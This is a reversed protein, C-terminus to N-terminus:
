AGRAAEVRAEMAAAIDRMQLEAREVRRHQRRLRERSGGDRESMARLRETEMVFRAAAQQLAVVEGCAVRAADRMGRIEPWQAFALHHAMGRAQGHFDSAEVFGAAFAILVSIEVSSVHDPDGGLAPMTPWAVGNVGMEAGYARVAGRLTARGEPTCVNAAGAAGSAFRELLESAQAAPVRVPAPACACATVALFGALVWRM